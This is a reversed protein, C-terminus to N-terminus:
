EGDLLALLDRSAHTVRLIETKAEDHLYIVLYKEFRHVRSYWCERLSSAVALQLRHGRMPDNRLAQLTAFYGEIFRVANRQSHAALFDSIEAVDITARPRIVFRRKM